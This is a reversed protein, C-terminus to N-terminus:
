LSEVLMPAYVPTCLVAIESMSSINTSGTTAKFFKFTLVDDKKFSISLIFNKNTTGGGALTESAYPTGNKYAEFTYTSNVSYSAVLRIKASGNAKMKFSNNLTYVGSSSSYTPTESIYVDSSEILNWNDMIIKDLPKFESTGVTSNIAHKVEAWSM